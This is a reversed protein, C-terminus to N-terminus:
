TLDMDQGSHVTQGSNLSEVLDCIHARSLYDM